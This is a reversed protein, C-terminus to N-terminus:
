TSSLICLTVLDLDRMCCTCDFLAWNWGPGNWSGPGGIVLSAFETRSDQVASFYMEDLVAGVAQKAEAVSSAAAAGGGGTEPRAFSSASIQFGSDYQDIDKIQM